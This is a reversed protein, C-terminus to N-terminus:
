VLTSNLSRNLNLEAKTPALSFNYMNKNAACLVSGIREWEDCAFNLPIFNINQNCDSALACRQSPKKKHSICFLPRLLICLYISRLNEDSNRERERNYKEKCIKTSSSLEATKKKMMAIDASPSINIHLKVVNSSLSPARPSHLQIIYILSNLVNPVDDDHHCTNWSWLVTCVCVGLLSSPSSM